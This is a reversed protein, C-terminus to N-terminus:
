QRQSNGVKKPTISFRILRASQSDKENGVSFFVGGGVGNRCRGSVVGYIGGM